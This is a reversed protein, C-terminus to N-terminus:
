LKGGRVEVVLLDNVFVVLWVRVLDLVVRVVVCVDEELVGEKVEVVLTVSAGVLVERVM